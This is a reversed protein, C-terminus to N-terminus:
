RLTMTKLFSNMNLYFGFCSFIKQFKIECNKSSYTIAWVIYQLISQIEFSWSWYWFNFPVVFQSNLTAKESWISHGEASENVIKFSPGKWVANFVNRAETLKEYTPSRHDGSQSPTRSTQTATWVWTAFPQDNKIEFIDQFFNSVNVSWSNLAFHGIISFFSALIVRNCGRWPWNAQSQYYRWAGIFYNALKLCIRHKIKLM